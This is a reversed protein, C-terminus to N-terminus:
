CYPRYTDNDAPPANELRIAPEKYAFTVGRNGDPDDAYTENIIYLGRESRLITRGDDLADLCEGRFRRAAALSDFKRITRGNRYSRFWWGGEESGGYEEREEYVNVFVVPTNEDARRLDATSRYDEIGDCM